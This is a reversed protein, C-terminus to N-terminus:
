MEYNFTVITCFGRPTHKYDVFNAFKKVIFIGRGSDKLLNEETTPDLIDEVTFGNGQDIITIVLKNSHKEIILEVYKSADYRNGHCIANIFIEYICLCIVNFDAGSFCISNKQKQLIYELNEISKRTSEFKNYFIIQKM